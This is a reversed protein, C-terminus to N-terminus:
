HVMKHSFVQKKDSLPHLLVVVKKITCSNSLFFQFFIVKKSKESRKQVKTPENINHHSLLRTHTEVFFYDPCM